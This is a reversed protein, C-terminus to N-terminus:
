PAGDLGDEPETTTDVWDAAVEGCAATARKANGKLFVLVNQHTKGLKRSAAFQKGARLPLSGAATVLIAENYLSLGAKEFAGITDSVFNRYNGAKDRVDGVVFCAFRDDRLKACSLAIIKRYSALFARYDM